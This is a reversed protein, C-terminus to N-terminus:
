EVDESNLYENINIGGPAYVCVSDTIIQNSGGLALIAGLLVDTVRVKDADSLKNINVIIINKQKLKSVIESTSERNVPEYLQVTVDKTENNQDENNQNEISNMINEILKM